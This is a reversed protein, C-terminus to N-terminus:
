SRPSKTATIEHDLPQIAFIQAVARTPDVTVPVTTTWHHRDATLLDEVAYSSPPAPPRPTAPTRLATPNLTLTGHEVADPNLTVVCLVRRATAPDVKSFALLSDNDIDHFRLTRLQRLAPHARRLENLTRLWPELSRGASRAGAFDRPRLEFKESDRYEESGPRLPENEYLEYGSYVGWSPSLLAALAARIAFMAPGKGHLCAPLIDHTNVFLNPRLVDCSGALEQGYETLERKTTRWTFYTFSQTFGIRSLGYLQAPRTFAEALFLVEPHARKVHWILRHWFDVPKTHPNDVRFIRVGAEIWVLVVRLIEAYLGEADNDFNLPYIDEWRRPPNEACAITGDPRVTFWEPHAVVWPHDPSCQLALDLAVELGLGAATAVFGVFDAHSGLRPDVADHGGEAAGIAWPSGPDDPGAVTSGNRGKRHSRGIPHIPPIYVVDFGMAAVRPLAASATAFTGHVPRGEADWGGTSRPFLEYWSGVLARPRDVYVEYVPSRTVLERRPGRDTWAEIHFTWTGPRDPVVLAAWRDLGPNELVMPVRASTDDPTPGAWVVVARVPTQGERWVTAGIPVPEGVVAKGPYRGGDVVPTVAEIVLRSSM